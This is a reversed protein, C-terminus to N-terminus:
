SMWFASLCHANLVMFASALALWKYPRFTYKGWTYMFLALCFVGCFGSMFLTGFYVIRWDGLANGAYMELAFLYEFGNQAWGFFFSLSEIIWVFANNCIVFLCIPCVGFLFVDKSIKALWVM